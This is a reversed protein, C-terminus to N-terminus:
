KENLYEELSNKVDDSLGSSYKSFIENIDDNKKFNSDYTIQGNDMMLIHDILEQVELILHTIIVIITNESKLKKIVNLIIEKNKIDLNATPEDFFIIKPKLLMCAYLSLLKKQGASLNKIKIKWFKKADFISSLYEMRNKYEDKSLSNLNVLLEIFNQVSIDNPLENNETFFYWEKFDINKQEINDLYIEGSTRNLENFIIKTLTTKGVGNNGFLGYCKGKELSFSIDRLVEKNKFKKNVRDIKLM